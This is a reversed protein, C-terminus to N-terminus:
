LEDWYAWDELEVHDIGAEDLLRVDEGRQVLARVEHLQRRGLKFRQNRVEELFHSKLRPLSLGPSAASDIAHREIGPRDESSLDDNLCLAVLVRDAHASHAIQESRHLVFTCRLADEHGGTTIPLRREVEGVALRELM